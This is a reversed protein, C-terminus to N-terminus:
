IKVSRRVLGLSLQSHACFSGQDAGAPHRAVVQGQHDIFAGVDADDALWRGVIILQRQRLQLLEARWQRRVLAIQGGHQFFVAPLQLGGEDYRWVVQVVVLCLHAQFRAQIDQQFLRHDHVGLFGEAQYFRATARALM